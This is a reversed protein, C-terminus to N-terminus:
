ICFYVIQASKTFEALKWSPIADSFHFNSNFSAQHYCFKQYWQFALLIASRQIYLDKFMPWLVQVCYDKLSLHSKLKSDSSTSFLRSDLFSLLWSCKASVTQKTNLIQYSFPLQCCTLYFQPSYLCDSFDLLM